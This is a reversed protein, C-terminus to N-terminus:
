RYNITLLSLSAIRKVSVLHIKVLSGSPSLLHALIQYAGSRLEVTEGANEQIVIQWYTNSVPFVM